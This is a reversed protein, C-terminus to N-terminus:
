HRTRRDVLLCDWLSALQDVALIGIFYWASSDREADLGVSFLPYEAACAGFDKNALARGREDGHETARLQWALFGRWPWLLAACALIEAVALVWRFAIVRRINVPNMGTDSM